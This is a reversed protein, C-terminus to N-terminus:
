PSMIGRRLRNGVVGGSVGEAANLTIVWYPAVRMSAVHPCTRTDGPGLFPAQCLTFLLVDTSPNVGM